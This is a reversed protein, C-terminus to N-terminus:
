KNGTIKNKTPKNTKKKIIPMRALFNLALDTDIFRKKLKATKTKELAKNIAPIITKKKTGAANKIKAQVAKRGAYKGIQISIKEKITNTNTPM